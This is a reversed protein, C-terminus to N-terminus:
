LYFPKRLRASQAHYLEPVDLAPLVDNGLIPLQVLEARELLNQVVTQLDSVFRISIVHPVTRLTTIASGPALEDDGLRVLLRLGPADALLIIFAALDFNKRHLHSRLTGSEFTLM